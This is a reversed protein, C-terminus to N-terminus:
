RPKTDDPTAIELMTGSSIERLLGDFRSELAAVKEPFRASLDESEAPDDQLNYLLPSADADEAIAKKSHGEAAHRRDPFIKWNGSTLAHPTAHMGHWHLLESRPHDDCKGLLTDWVDMGDLPPKGKAHRKWDIGAARCLTPLLDIAGILDDSKGGGPIKGPWSVIGPVRTGGEFASWKAGRFPLASAKEGKQPGNDSIFVVITNQALKLEDLLELIDGIRGDLEEVVDGYDGFGSHGKWDPHPMVPFHPATHPLYLFFPKEKNERIFRMAETTFQETLLRNDTPKVEIKDGRWLEDLQNNSMPNYFSSDFGQDGPTTGPLRGIHWKGSIGTVYGEAKFIEAITLAESAMGDKPGMLYGAVGKTWGLRVPYAGTLLAMRSPTCVSAGSHFNTLRMGGAALKDLVPTKISPHGYCGLDRYGLDDAMILIVNPKEAKLATVTLLCALATAFPFRM